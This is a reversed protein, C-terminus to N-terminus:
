PHAFCCILFTNRQKKLQLKSVDNDKGNFPFIMLQEFVYMDLWLKHFEPLQYIDDRFNHCIRKSMKKMSM